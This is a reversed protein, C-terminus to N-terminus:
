DLFLVLSERGHPWLAFIDDKFRKWATPSLLYELAGKDFDAMTIDGYSCLRHPGKATGDIQLYNENNFISSNCRLCLELARLLCNTPPINKSCLDLSKEVSPLGLNNDINPFMNKIDFSVLVSNLLLYLSNLNDIIDLMHNTDKIRPPLESVIDYLVNEVFMSLNEIATNCGSTIVRTPYGIKHTKVNVYMKRPTSNKGMKRWSKKQQVM